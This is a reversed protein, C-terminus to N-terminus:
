PTLTYSGEAVVRGGADLIRITHTGMSLPGSPGQCSSSASSTDTMLWSGDSQRKLTDAVTNTVVTAGDLQWILKDTAAMSSPLRLTSTVQVVSSSCSFTSPAFTIGGANSGMNM